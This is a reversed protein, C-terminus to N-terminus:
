GAGGQLSGDEFSAPDEVFTDFGFDDASVGGDPVRMLRLRDPPIAELDNSSDDASSDFADFDLDEPDLMGENEEREDFPSVWWISCEIAAPLGGSAFSDWSNFWRGDSLYRFRVAGLSIGPLSASSEDRRLRTEGSAADFEFRLISEPELVSQPVDGFVRSVVVGDHAISVTRSTGVIGPAGIGTRAMSTMLARELGDFIATALAERGTTARLQARSGALQNVFLAITGVLVGILGLAILTELLSFGRATRSGTM